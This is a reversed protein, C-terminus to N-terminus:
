AIRQAIEEIDERTIMRHTTFRIRNGGFPVCLIGKSNFYEVAEEPSKFKGEISVVLINTQPDIIDFGQEKLIKGLSKANEHDEKLRSVMKTLAVIGPAALIGAQRMGGGLMKRIKRAKDIFEQTGAILSGVPASLGKSLCFQITDVSEAYRQVDVDHFIAANFIRAGDLHVFLNNEHALTAVDKIENPSIAIGGHRNHTNELCVLATDPFHINKPRLASLLQEPSFIGHTSPILKPIAGAIASIGGVEYHYIHSDAELIVENGPQTQGKVAILNGQTGSTVFLAAEKGMMKAALEELRNVTPDDGFVDDGVEAAAAAERMEDTPHTVTDSRLDIIKM